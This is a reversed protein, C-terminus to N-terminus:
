GYRRALYVIFALVLIIVGGVILLRDMPLPTCTGTKPDCGSACVEEMHRTYNQCNLAGPNLVPSNGCVEFTDNLGLTMNDVCYSIVNNGFVIGSASLVVLAMIIM